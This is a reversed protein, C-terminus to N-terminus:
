LRAGQVLKRRPPLPKTAHDVMRLGQALNLLASIMTLLRKCTSKSPNADRTAMKTAILPFCTPHVKDSLGLTPLASMEQETLQRGFLGRIPSPSATSRYTILLNPTTHDGNNPAGRHFIRPDHLWIDGKKLIMRQPRHVRKATLHGEASLTEHFGGQLRFRM